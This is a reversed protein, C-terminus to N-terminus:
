VALFMSVAIGVFYVIPSLVSILGIAKVFYSSVKFSVTRNYKKNKLNKIDKSSLSM